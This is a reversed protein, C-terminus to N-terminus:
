RLVAVQQGIGGIGTTAAVQVNPHPLHGASIWDPKGIVRGVVALGVDRGIAATDCEPGVPVPASNIDARRQAALRHQDHARLGSVFPRVAGTERRAPLSQGVPDAGFVLMRAEVFVLSKNHAPSPAFRM